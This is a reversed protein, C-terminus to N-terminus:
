TLVGLVQCVFGAVVKRQSVYDMLEHAACNVALHIETGLALGLNACAETILDLPQEPKEYGLALAGSDHLIAQTAEFCVSLMQTNYKLLDLELLYILRCHEKCTGEKAVDTSFYSLQLQMHIVISSYKNMSKFPIATM